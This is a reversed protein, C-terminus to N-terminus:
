FYLTWQQAAPQTRIPATADTAPHHAPAPTAPGRTLLYPTNLQCAVVPAAAPARAPYATGDVEAARVACTEKVVFSVQMASAASKNGAAAPPPPILALAAVGLPLLLSTLRSTCSPKM